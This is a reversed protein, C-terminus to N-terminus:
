KEFTIYFGTTPHSGSEVHTVQKVTWGDDAWDNMKKTLLSTLDSSKLDDWGSGTKRSSCVFVVQYEM